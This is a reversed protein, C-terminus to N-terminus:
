PLAGLITGQFTRRGMKSMTKGLPPGPDSLARGPFEEVVTRQMANCVVQMKPYWGYVATSHLARRLLSSRVKSM